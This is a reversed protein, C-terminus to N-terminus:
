HDCSSTEYRTWLEIMNVRGFLDGPAAKWHCLLYSLSKGLSSQMGNCGVMRLDMMWVVLIGNCSEIWPWLRVVLNITGIFSSRLVMWPRMDNMCVICLPNIMGLWSMDYECEHMYWTLYVLWGCLVGISWKLVYQMDNWFCMPIVMIM